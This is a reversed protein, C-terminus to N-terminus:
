TLLVSAAPFLAVKEIGPIVISVRSVGTETFILLEANEGSPSPDSSSMTRVVWSSIFSFTSLQARSINSLRSSTWLFYEPVLLTGSVKIKSPLFLWFRTSGSPSYRAFSETSYLFPLLGVANDGAKTMSIEGGVACTLASFSIKEGLPSPFLSVILM